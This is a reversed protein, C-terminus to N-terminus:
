LPKISHVEIGKMGGMSSVSGKVEAKKGAFAKAEEFPTGDTHSAYLLYVTGEDTLLGMPQGGKVCKTACSAHDAGKAGHSIYCAMDLIEGKASIEGESHEEGEALAPGTLPLALLALLTLTILAKKTM